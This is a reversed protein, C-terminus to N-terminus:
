KGYNMVYDKAEQRTMKDGSWDNTIPEECLDILECIIEKQRQTDNQMAASASSGIDCYEAFLKKADDTQFDWRKLTGWKLVLTNKM